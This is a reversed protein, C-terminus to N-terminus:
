PTRCPVQEIPVGPPAALAFAEDTLPGNIVIDSKLKIEVGDEFAQGPLAFRILTPAWIGSTLQFKEYSARWPSSATATTGAVAVVDAAGDVGRRRVSIWLHRTVGPRTSESALELVDAGLKPDWSVGVVNMDESVPADGLLIAAIERPLLPIRILMAVSQPCAVGRRFENHQKDWFSFTNGDTVLIGVTGGLTVEADFRLRGNRDVLTLVTAAFREGGLWSTTRTEANLTRVIAQRARIAQLLQLGAPDAYPRKAVLPAACGAHHLLACAAVIMPGRGGWRFGPLKRM